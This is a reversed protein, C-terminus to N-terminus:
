EKGASFVTNHHSKRWPLIGEQVVPHVRNTLTILTTRRVPDHWISTGTFGTHGYSSGSILDGGSCGQSIQEMTGGTSSAEWGVARSFPSFRTHCRTAFDRLIPDLFNNGDRDTWVRMYRILDEITSFLGAHGSVGDLGYYGNCDHVTGVIAEKRWELSDLHSASLEFAGKPHIGNKLQQIYEQAMRYELGNGNETPAIPAPLPKWAELPRYTTREMSLPEFVMRQTLRDLSEEWVRELIFGLMMFGPDSYVVQAGPIGILEEQSITSIYEERGRLRAFYPRWAPLGSTHTLLHFITIRGKEVRSVGSAFEPIFRVVPDNFSLKGSQVSLLIAPLTAVVKTLSAVDYITDIGVSDGDGEYTLKGRAVIVPDENERLFAAVGGPFIGERIGKDLNTELRHKVISM